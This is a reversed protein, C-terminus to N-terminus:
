WVPRAQGRAFQTLPKFTKRFHLIIQSDYMHMSQIHKAIADPEQPTIKYTQPDLRMYGSRKFALDSMHGYINKGQYLQNNFLTMAHTDEIAYVANDKLCKPWLVQFSIMMQDTMHGGDDIVLDFPGYKACVGEMFAADSQSGTEINIRKAKNEFQKCKPSLDVGTYNLNVGAFYTQWVYISGGNQVGIELMNLSSRRRFQHIHSEYADAYEVWHDFRPVTANDPYSLYIKRLDSRHDRRLTNDVGRVAGLLLLTAIALLILHLM